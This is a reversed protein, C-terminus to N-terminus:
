LGAPLRAGLYPALSRNFSPAQHQLWGYVLLGGIVPFCRSRDCFRDSLDVAYYSRGDAPRAAAAEFAADRGLARRRSTACAPGPFAGREQARAVCRLVAPGGAHPNDRVVVVNRVTAPMRAWARRYGSAEGPAWRSVQSFFVTDIEPRASLWEPVGERMRRCYPANNGGYRTLATFDCASGYLSTVSWGRERAVIDLGPRWHASHSDGIVAVHRRAASPEVGVRCAEFGGADFLGGRCVTAPDYVARWLDAAAAPVSPFVDRRQLSGTCSRDMARAGRCAESGSADTAAAVAPAAAAAAVVLALATIERGPLM